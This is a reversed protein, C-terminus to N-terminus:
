VREGLTSRIAKPVVSQRRAEWKQVRKVPASEAKSKSAVMGAEQAAAALLSWEKALSEANKEQTEQVTALVAEVSRVLPALVEKKAEDNADAAGQFANVAIQIIEDPSREGVAPGGEEGNREVIQAVARRLPALTLSKKEAVAAAIQKKSAADSVVKETGDADGVSLAAKRSEREEKAQHAKFSTFSLVIPPFEAPPASVVGIKPKERQVMVNLKVDCPAKLNLTCTYTGNSEDIVEVTPDQGAPLNNSQLRATVYAGGSTCENGFKDVSNLKIHCPSAAFLPAPPITFTSKVVDPIGTLVEFLVPSSVIPTGNLSVDVRCDGKVKPEFRAEYSAMSNKVSSAVQLEHEQGDPTHMLVKLADDDASTPNGYVDRVQPRFLLIEGAGIKSGSAMHNGDIIQLTSLGGSVDAKGAPQAVAGKKDRQDSVIQATAFGEIFTGRASAPGSTSYVRFPSNPLQERKADTGSGQECWIFLRLDGSTEPTYRIEFVEGEWKGEFSQSEATKWEASHNENSKDVLILGFTLANSWTLNSYRDYLKLTLLAPQGAQVKSIGAGSVLSKIIDPESSSLRLKFPSGVIQEESVLVSAEFNGALEAHWTLSYTGDRNDITSTDVSEINCSCRVKAGGVKCPNGMRDRVRLTLHVGQEARKGVSGTLPLVIDGALSTASASAPGPAVTLLFPSGPLPLGQVRLQVHLKYSGVRAISYFVRHTDHPRGHAHLRGPDMGGFAFGIGSPDSDLENKFIGQRSRMSRAKSNDLAIDGKRSRSKTNDDTSVKSKQTELSRDIAQRRRWARMHAQRQGADLPGKRESVLDQGDKVVTVWGITSLVDKRPTRPTRPTRLRQQQEEVTEEWWSPWSRFTDRWEKEKEPSRRNDPLPQDVAALARVGNPGEEYDILYIKSRPAFSRELLCHSNAIKLEM